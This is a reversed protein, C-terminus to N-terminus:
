MLQRPHLRYVLCFMKGSSLFLRKVFYRTIVLVGDFFKWWIREIGGHFANREDRTRHFFLAFFLSFLLMSIFLIKNLIHAEGSRELFAGATSFSFFM